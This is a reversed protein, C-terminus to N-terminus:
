FTSLASPCQAKAMEASVKVTFASPQNPFRKGVEDFTRCATATEGAGALAVGLRFLLDPARPSEPYAQFGGLLVDAAEDYAGRLILAEGLWNTADPARPHDPFLAIFQRFQEEAFPYDGRLVAEYGATYQANADGDRVVGGGGGNLDLPQGSLNIDGQDLTGLPQPPTGLPLGEIDANPEILADDNEPGLLDTPEAPPTASQPDNPAPAQPLGADPTAGDSRPAADTKGPTGGELQQFRFENDESMRQVLTQLQTMQFQLGEVQGTLTRMQEELQSIRVNLAAVDRASQAVLVPPQVAPNTADSSLTGAEGSLTKIDGQLSAIRTQLTLLREAAASTDDAFGPVPLALLVSLATGAVWYRSPPWNFKTRM